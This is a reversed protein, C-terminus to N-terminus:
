VIGAQVAKSIMSAPLPEALRWIISMPRSGVHSVYTAKGL